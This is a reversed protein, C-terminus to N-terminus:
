SEANLIEGLYKYLAITELKTLQVTGPRMILDMEPNTRKIKLFLDGDLKFEVNRLSKNEM